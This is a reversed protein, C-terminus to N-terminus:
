TQCEQRGRILVWTIVDPRGLIIWSLRRMELAKVYDYRPLEKQWTLNCIWPSRPEPPPCRRPAMMRGATSDKSLPHTCGSIGARWSSPCCHTPSADCCQDCAEALGKSKRNNHNHGPIKLLEEFKVSAGLNSFCQSSLYAPGREKWTTNDSGLM